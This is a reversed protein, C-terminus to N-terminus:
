NKDYRLLVAAAQYDALARSRSDHIQSSLMSFHREVSASSTLVLAGEGAVKCWTPLRLCYKVWFGWKRLAPDAASSIREYDLLEVGLAEFIPNSMPIRRIFELEETLAKNNQKKVFSHNLLRCGHLLTRTDSIRNQTDSLMRDYFKSIINIALSFHHIYCCRLNLWNIIFHKTICLIADTIGQCEKM